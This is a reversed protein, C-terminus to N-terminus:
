RKSGETRTQLFKIIHHIHCLFAQIISFLPHCHELLQWVTQLQL